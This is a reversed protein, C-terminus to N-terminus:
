DKNRLVLSLPKLGKSHEIVIKIIAFLPVFLIMGGIGWAMGGILIAIIVALPSLAVEKGIIIPELVYSEILQIVLVVGAFLLVASPDRGFIIVILVPVVGSIFPGVYPIITVLAGFVTLLVLYPVEFYWFALLYMAGLLAMVKIRGWLYAHIVTSSKSIISLTKEDNEWHTFRFVMRMFRDQYILFLFVYILVLLFKLTVQLINGLLLTLEEELSSLMSDSRASLFKQQEQQSIGILDSLSLQMRILFHKFEEKLVPLDGAFISLQYLFLYAISGVVVFVLLSSLLGAAISGLRLKRVLFLHVPNVLAALFAAFTLPILFGAGYYLVLWSAIGCFLIANIKKLQQYDMIPPSSTSNQLM